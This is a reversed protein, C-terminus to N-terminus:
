LEGALTRCVFFSVGLERLLGRTVTLAGEEGIESLTSAARPNPNEDTVVTSEM